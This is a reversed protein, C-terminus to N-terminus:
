PTKLDALMDDSISAEDRGAQNNRTESVSRSPQQAAPSRGGSKLVVDFKTSDTKRAPSPLSFAN